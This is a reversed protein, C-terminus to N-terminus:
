ATRPEYRVAELRYILGPYIVCEDGALQSMEFGGDRDITGPRVYAYRDGRDTVIYGPISHGHWEGVSPGLETVM